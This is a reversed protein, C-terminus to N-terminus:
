RNADDTGGTQQDGLDAAANLEGPNPLGATSASANARM